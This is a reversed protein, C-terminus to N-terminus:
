ILLHEVCGVLERGWREQPSTYIGLHSTEDTPHIGLHKQRVRAHGDRPQRFADRLRLAREGLCVEGANDASVDSIPVEMAADRILNTTQRGAGYVDGNDYLGEYTAYILREGRV